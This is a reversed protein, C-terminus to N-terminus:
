VCVIYLEDNSDISKQEITLGFKTAATKVEDLSWWRQTILTKTEDILREGEYVKINEQTQTTSKEKHFNIVKWDVIYKKNQDHTTLFYDLNPLNIKSVDDINILIKGNPNLLKTFKEFIKELSEDELCIENLANWMLIILDFKERTEFKFFDITSLTIRSDQTKFRSDSRITNLMDESNDIGTLRYGLQSLQILHRGTGCGVDLINSGKPILSTILNLEEWLLKNDKIQSFVIDYYKASVDNATVM